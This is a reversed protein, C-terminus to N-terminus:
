NKKKSVPHNNEQKHSLKMVSGFMKQGGILKLYKESNESPAIREYNGLNKPMEGYMRPVRDHLIYSLDKNMQRKTHNNM